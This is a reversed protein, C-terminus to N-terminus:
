TTFLCHIGRSHLEKSKRRCVPVAEAHELEPLLMWGGRWQVSVTMIMPLPLFYSHDLQAGETGSSRNESYARLSM